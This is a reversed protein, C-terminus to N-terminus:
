LTHLPFRATLYGLFRFFFWAANGRAINAHRLSTRSLLTANRWSHPNLKVSLVVAYLYRVCLMELFSVAFFSSISLQRYLNTYWFPHFKFIFKCNKYCNRAHRRSNWLFYFINFYVFKVSNPVTVSNLCSVKIAIKRYFLSFYKLFTSIDLNSWVLIASEDVTKDLCLLETKNSSNTSQISTRMHQCYFMVIEKWLTLM